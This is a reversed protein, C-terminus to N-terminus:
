RRAGPAITSQNMKMATDKNEKTPNVVANIMLGLGVCAMLTLLGLQLSNMNNSSAM